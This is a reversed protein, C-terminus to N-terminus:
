SAATTASSPGPRCTWSAGGRSTPRTASRACWPSAPARRPIPWRIPTSPCTSASCRRACRRASWRATASTPRTPWWRWARASCSPGPPTSASTATPGTSCCRTTPARAGGPGGARGPGRRHPLRRGLAHPRGAPLGRRARRQPPLRAPQRPPQALRHHHLPLALRREARAAPVAGRLGARGRGDPARVPGRLQAPQGPHRGEAAIGAARLRARLRAHPRLPRRLLEAGPARHRPRQRGLRHPLLRQPRAHPPLPGRHRHPHVLVRPGVHLSGSVTPPPTDISFVESRPTGPRFHYTGEADWRQAGASRSATSRPSRPSRPWPGGVSSASRTPAAM